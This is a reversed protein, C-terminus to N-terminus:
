SASVTRSQRPAVTVREDRPASVARDERYAVTMRHASPPAAIVGPRLAGPLWTVPLAQVRTEGALWGFPTAAHRAATAGWALPINYTALIPQTLSLYELPVGYDVRAAARLSAALVVDSSVGARREISATLDRRVAATWGAPLVGDTRLAAMTEIPALADRRTAATWAIGSIRDLRVGALIEVPAAHDRRGLGSWAAPAALDVRINGGWADPSVLDRRAAAAVGFPFAADMHIGALRESPLSADSLIPALTEVPSAFDRRVGEITEFPMAYDLFIATGGAAPKFAAIAASMLGSSSATWTPNIASAGQILYADQFTVNGVGNVVTFGSDVGLSGGSQSSSGTTIVLSGATTPTVSGPQLTIASGSSAANSAELVSSSAAGSWATILGTTYNYSVTFTHGLGTTPGDCYYIASNFGYAGIAGNAFTYSNGYNDSVSTVYGANYNGYNFVILNAGVTDVASSTASSGPSGIGPTEVNAVLSFAM